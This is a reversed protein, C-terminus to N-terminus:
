TAREQPLFLVNNIYGRTGAGTASQHELFAAPSVPQVHGSRPLSGVYGFAAMAAFVAAVDSGHRCETELLVMPRHTALTRPAGRLVAMEHGEVDIKVFGVRRGEAMEAVLCDLTTSAASWKVASTGFDSEARATTMAFDPVGRRMPTRLDLRGIQDSLAVCVTRCQVPLVAALHGQASPRPEIVLVAASKGALARAYLGHHAGVDITLDFRLPLGVLWRLTADRGFRGAHRSFRIHHRLRALGRVDREIAM